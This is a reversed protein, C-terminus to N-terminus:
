YNPLLYNQMPYAYAGSSFARDPREFLEKSPTDHMYVNYSNPFLFKVFGMPNNKGPKQVIQYPFNGASTNKWDIATAKVMTKSGDSNLKYVNMNKRSLYNVDKKVLPLIDERLITPPIIWDPNFVIHTLNASFVPTKRYTKGVIVHMETNKKGKEMLQLQYDAINVYIYKEGLSVPLKQAREMNKQIQTIVDSIPRNLELVTEPTLIGTESICHRLQYSLLAQQLGISDQTDSKFDGTQRLRKVLKQINIESFENNFIYDDWLNNVKLFQYYEKALSLRYFQINYITDEQSNREVHENNFINFSTFLFIIGILPLAVFLVFIKRRSYSTM